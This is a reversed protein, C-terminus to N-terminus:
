GQIDSLSTLADNAEVLFSERAKVLAKVHDEYTVYDGDVDEEMYSPIHNWESIHQYRTVADM